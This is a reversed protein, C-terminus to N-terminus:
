WCCCFPSSHMHTSRTQVVPTPGLVSVKPLRCQRTSNNIPKTNNTSTNPVTTINTTKTNNNSPKPGTDIPKTTNTTTGNNAPMTDVAVVTFSLSVSVGSAGMGWAYRHPTARVTHDGFNQLRSLCKQSSRQFLGGLCLTFPPFMTSISRLASIENSYEFVVSGVRQANGSVIAEINFSPNSRTITFLNIEQGNTLDMIKKKSVANVLALSIAGPAGLHRHEATISASTRRLRVADHTTGFLFVLGSIVVAAGVIYSTTGKM